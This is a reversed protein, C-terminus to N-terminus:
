GKNHSLEFVCLLFCSYYLSAGYEWREAVTTMWVCGPSYSFQLSGEDTLFEMIM